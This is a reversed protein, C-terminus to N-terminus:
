GCSTPWAGTGSGGALAAHEEDWRHQKERLDIVLRAPPELYAV